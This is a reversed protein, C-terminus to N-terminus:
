PEVVDIARAAEREARALRMEAKRAEALKLRQQIWHKMDDTPLTLTLDAEKDEM